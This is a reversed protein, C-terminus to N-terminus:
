RPGRFVEHAYQSVGRPRIGLARLPEDTWHAPELDAFLALGMVSAVEPRRRRLVRMGARLAARPVHFTRISRGAAAECITVAQRRTVAEPGGFEVLGPVQDAVAWHAIAEAVDDVAVYRAQAEGRGLVIVRGRDPDFGTLPSLWLEQFADPRVIVHQMPSAALRREVARKAAALPFSRAALDSLGAYSVFVFRQVGAREAAGILALTGHGDVARVDLAEGALARDMATVTTVVTTVGRVARDLSGADRLDGRVVEVEPRDAFAAPPEGRVLVRLRVGRAGLRRAVRGGLEGTAGCVLVM